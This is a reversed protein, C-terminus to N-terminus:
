SWRFNEDQTLHSQTSLLLGQLSINADELKDIMYYIPYNTWHKLKHTNLIEQTFDSLEELGILIEDLKEVHYLQNITLYTDLNDLNSKLIKRLTYLKHLLAIYSKTYELTSSGLDLDISFQNQPIAIM